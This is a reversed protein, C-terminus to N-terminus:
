QKWLVLLDERKYKKAYELLSMGINPHILRVFVSSNQPNCGAKYMEKELFFLVAQKTGTRIAEFLPSGSNTGSFPETALAVDRHVIKEICEMSHSQIAVQLPSLAKSSCVHVDAHLRDMLLMFLSINCLFIARTLPTHGDRDPENLIKQISGDDTNSGKELLLTVMETNGYKVALGLPETDISISGGIKLQLRQHVAEPFLNVLLKASSISNQKIALILPNTRVFPKQLVRPSLKRVLMEIYDVRGDSIAKEVITMGTKSDSSLLVEDVSPHTFDAGAQELLTLIEMSSNLRIAISLATEEQRNSQNSDIGKGSLLFRIFEVDQSCVAAMLPTMDNSSVVSLSANLEQICMRAFEFKKELISTVLISEQDSEYEFALLESVRSDGDVTAGHALLISLLKSDRFLLAFHLPSYGEMDQLNVDAGLSCLAEVVSYLKLQLAKHLLTTSGQLPLDLNIGLQRYFSLLQPKNKTGSYILLNRMAVARNPDQEPLLLFDHLAITFPVQLPDAVKDFIGLQSLLHVLPGKEVQPSELSGKLLKARTENEFAEEKRASIEKGIAKIPSEQSPIICDSHQKAFRLVAEKQENGELQEIGLMEQYLKEVKSCSINVHLKSCLESLLSSSIKEFKKQNEPDNRTLLIADAKSCDEASLEIKEKELIDIAINRRGRIFSSFMRFCRDFAQKQDEQIRPIDNKEIFKALKEEFKGQLLVAKKKRLKQFDRKLPIRKLKSPNMEKYLKFYENMLEPESELRMTIYDSVLASPTYKTLFVMKCTPKHYGLLQEEHSVCIDKKMTSRFGPLGLELGLDEKAKNAVHVDSGYLDQITERFVRDRLDAALSLFLNKGKKDIGFCIFPYNKQVVELYRMQCYGVAEICERFFQLTLTSDKKEQLKTCIAFLYREIMEYVSDDDREAGVLPAREAINEVFTMLRAYLERNSEEQSYSRISEGREKALANLMASADFQLTEWLEDVYEGLSKSLSPILPPEELGEFGLHFQKSSYSCVIDQFAREDIGEFSTLIKRFLIFYLDLIHKDTDNNKCSALFSKKMLLDHCAFYEKLITIRDQVDKGDIVRLRSHLISVWLELALSFLETGDSGNVQQLLKFLIENGQHLLGGVRENNKFYSISVYIQKILSFAGSLDGRNLLADCSKIQDEIQQYREDERRMRNIDPSPGRNSILGQQSMAQVMRGLNMVHELDTESGHRQLQVLQISEGASPSDSSESSGRAVSLNSNNAGSPFLLIQPLLNLDRVSPATNQM